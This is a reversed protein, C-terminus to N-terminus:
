TLSNFLKASKLETLMNKGPELFIHFSFKQLMRFFYRRSYNHPFFSRPPLTMNKEKLLNTRPIALKRMIELM